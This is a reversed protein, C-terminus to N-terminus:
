YTHDVNLIASDDQDASGAEDSMVERELEFTFAGVDLNDVTQLDVVQEFKRDAGAILVAVM